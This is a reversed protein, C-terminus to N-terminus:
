ILYNSSILVQFYTYKFIEGGTIKSLQGITPLDVYANNLIYLDISCGATVCELALNTYASNQPAAFVRSLKM